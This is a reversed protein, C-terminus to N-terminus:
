SLWSIEKKELAELNDRLGLWAGIWHIGRPASCEPHSHLRGDGNM